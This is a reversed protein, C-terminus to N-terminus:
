CIKETKDQAFINFAESVAFRSQSVGASIVVHAKKDSSALGVSSDDFLDHDHGQNPKISAEFPM